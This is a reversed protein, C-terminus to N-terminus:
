GQVLKHEIVMDLHDYTKGDISITTLFDKIKDQLTAYNLGTKPSKISETREGVKRYCEIAVVPQNGPAGPNALYEESKDGQLLRAVEDYVGQQEQAGDPSVKIFRGMYDRFRGNKIADAEEKSFQNVICYKALEELKTGFAQQMDATTVMTVFGEAM